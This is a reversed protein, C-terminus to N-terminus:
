TRQKGNRPRRMALYNIYISGAAFLMVAFLCGFYKPYRVVANISLDQIKFHSISTDFPPLLFTHEARLTQVTIVWPQYRVVSNDPIIDIETPLFIAILCVLIILFSTAQSALLLTQRTLRWRM